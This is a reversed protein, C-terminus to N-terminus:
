RLGCNQDRGDMTSTGGPMIGFPRYWNESFIMRL